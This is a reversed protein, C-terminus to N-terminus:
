AAEAAADTARPRDTRARAPRMTWLIGGVALVSGLVAFATLREHFLVTGGAIGIVPVLLSYPAVASVPYRALLMSWVTSGVITGAVTVYVLAILSLWGREHSAADAIARWGAAPGEVGASLALLPLPPVVSMWLVLRLPETCRAKRVAVNGVAWGAAAGLTLLIPDVGTHGRGIGIVLIGVCAVATGALQRSTPRERLALVALLMTMPASAQVVVSSLGSPMGEHIAVFLLGFQAVGFGLGYLLLWHPAVDPPRVFLLVPVALVLYRMAAFFVPPFDHLGLRVAAFNLGWLVAVLTALLRDRVTM